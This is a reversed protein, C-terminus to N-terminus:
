VGGFSSMYPCFNVQKEGGMVDSETFATTRGIGGGQTIDLVQWLVMVAGLEWSIDSTQQAPILQKGKQLITPDLVPKM